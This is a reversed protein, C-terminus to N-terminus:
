NPNMGDISNFPRDIYHEYDEKKGKISDSMSNQISDRKSSQSALEYRVYKEKETSYEAVRPM